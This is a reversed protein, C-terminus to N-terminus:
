LLTCYFLTFCLFAKVLVFFHFLVQPVQGDPTWCTYLMMCQTVVTHVWWVLQKRVLDASIAPMLLLLMLIMMIFFLICGKIMQIYTDDYMFLQDKSIRPTEEHKKPLMASVDVAASPDLTDGMSKLLGYYRISAQVLRPSCLTLTLETIPQDALLFVIPFRRSTYPFTHWGIKMWDEDEKQKEGHSNQSNQCDRRGWRRRVKTSNRHFRHVAFAAHPYIYIYTSRHPNVM